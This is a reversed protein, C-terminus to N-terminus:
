SSTFPQSRCIDMFDNLAQTKILEIDANSDPQVEPKSPIAVVFCGTLESMEGFQWGNCLDSGKEGLKKTIIAKRQQETLDKLPILGATYVNKASQYSPSPNMTNIVRKSEDGMPTTEIVAKTDEDGFKFSVTDNKRIVFRIKTQYAPIQPYFGFQILYYEPFKVVNDLEEEDDWKDWVYAIVRSLAAHWENIAMLNDVPNAEAECNPDFGYRKGGLSHSKKDNSKTMNKDVM